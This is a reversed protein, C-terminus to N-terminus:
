FPPLKNAWPMIHDAKICTGISNDCSYGSPCCHILDACCIAAQYPCCGYINGPTQCCTSGSPCSSKEDPCMINDGSKEHSIVEDPQFLLHKDDKVHPDEIILLGTSKTLFPLHKSGKQCSHTGCSYGSPCCHIHDECCVANSVPCCGWKGADGLSCCTNSSPCSTKGDPCIIDSSSSLVTQPKKITSNANLKSTWEVINDGRSCTGSSIDCTYGSPCCHQGDSCCVANPLPCCGYQGSSLKCCTNGDPCESQGDPCVVSEVNIPTASSKEYWSVISNGRSCTGASVDCTYGSPCCHQGDSCCVANPLPCCGYQGSSLKCCTNGDPCESQGDPCVVSEVNIPTASSKKYWSVISNGRSCTGASVDCTYGSPCCHEGDSCCVANPLPCCGYQGSSLKCCTNGDPCESQGDPCVVSEVNIPTASSKEYWSVISNGRSCTGASVDCTYGSPCCHQGDSCCVANPLPCCGYQGSSLKCCTNGDPCESQGDPCVVSEVNIPTASSKEYWSVISNGRSCTGASVDCTYGSPCCHQGDSCCVANPLPCCGYQGSSLKCCTNGDPCESQGDPCVVSEVKVPTAASKEYWSVISNGRSCTGASVDCTYGSPCCHQGDSCCVANPLPCCGYQGSSLKCCTNGDPCESRGDPCVVSEVNIPTASSKEYWSVISNGRSCTGASVDCTYGSPCCHQGDSCCVANPLPCCGYQGSSLKCCTNGDPCESQGDPCVVSEVKVPTAASKEYWSVISNGRSCTGASVDCTYGSPCCHQGDSCCVANPLPCCGYQGSSLKCCTNGDPCESQGDPCVVSEVNIPTASSKEYWSVISNGRSCTGASVDCTYGSPCCHQGDSCCVANPLPCCGYQGSSLKCCTNGDPCESQGDPCVVSEVKVPTAPSKEYWSVISNGRSCTGASVDCTYGSPCCHEGDSCCVANPLPCCGYQGSSLKCCTNGDPCESQGDPCVVSEVNIPTASSKEYWSVISNGRSCTGASVDCTYGSPCCHQGDSCCVANPLPCCGYQGSSLKCCTNGDPCESQGDPCVVSEVKVPTAPSKEYWSVISNGRSCTGASVDCTYGSPCCHEGDSCCVANPLPCCGYQGSSLKCCTNGDPCESQGDPCVVSEVNIPTASSKEYWSVISNGRSCTGASVDCTYGSPCCHQGDSCCVANPLPCCGYQGSSLKCCTNGDPCESQGDPCVVSEVNIPTASSKEYWSVISNGRSCTGASVDCTYGSPCCHQGDSCCVANPLPCCGYQGSSLKCCTNGDPCESQGDPCVVSEVNIPTASSKEYWSVISNGRSCTGASVDCTYGSPCCHEGDSCCVANPLPCCGYQGSSLKCCTNGDPCESQGDPCVVSEVNIPTASSKEYWSVISNGRSCTGASVDCTYGSPCCHEGDSCCVANPLPCCGYQGSSLKCCTNGDPCESQGDPCVVSEIKVPTAPSKEYWSVISNGRSCTGASVDCTYGSPCCHQGDSCCVANPLPCCGYQGSSLKCCTNGDPCESRGDPCVVSEVKVPTASSKEYWSVISNGRSCTGASVDCTYGSPCCHEGDSCCVANPLPCCGYQGSSLKCCTNGDPCESRGDPCVVSEVKVPTASSKEYWSVISNGRSCTGASVDCTYGSPCCHQGDSCCVANPLPCCGYQGSSLKCCTNGDPCESRGDPCVVSEVKVPTAPSKEYWSVISNGRSCTGASVDCTYGSPCCHQGDSCCVANPLPCCGYQGSSLKCCTNGDPCESQGDPCVVSEVNIPTASSKEYWSVISNGRSCTGASVDCTYGSPCCHEGDSCCVANPLPCCGYQGSSLKCCTNGDPCESQGDPCIVISAMITLDADLVEDGKMCTNSTIDCQYGLPCCHLGDSCCVANPYTCCRSEDNLSSCCTASTPCTKGDKCNNRNTLMEALPNQVASEKLPGGLTLSVLSMILLIVLKM